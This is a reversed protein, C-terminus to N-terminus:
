LRLFSGGRRKAFDKFALLCPQLTDVAVFFFCVFFLFCFIRVDGVKRRGLVSRNQLCGLYGRFFAGLLFLSSWEATMLNRSVVSDWKLCRQVSIEKWHKVSVQTDLRIGSHKAQLCWPVDHPSPALTELTPSPAQPIIKGAKQRSQHIGIGRVRHFYQLPPAPATFRLETVQGPGRWPLSEQEPLQTELRCRLVLSRQHLLHKPNVLKKGGDKWRESFESPPNPNPNCLGRTLYKM